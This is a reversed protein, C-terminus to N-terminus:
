AVGVKVTEYLRTTKDINIVKEDLAMAGAAFTKLLEVAIVSIVPQYKKAFDESGLIENIENELKTKTSDMYGTGRDIMERFGNIYSVIDDMSATKTENSASNDSVKGAEIAALLRVIVHHAAAIRWLHKNSAQVLDSFDSYEPIVVTKREKNFPVVIAM